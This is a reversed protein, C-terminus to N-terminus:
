ATGCSPGCRANLAKSTKNASARAYANAYVYGTDGANFVQPLALSFSSWDIVAQINSIATASGPGAALLM